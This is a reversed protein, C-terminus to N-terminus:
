AGTSGGAARDDVGCREFFTSAIVFRGRRPDIWDGRQTHSSLHGLAISEIQAKAEAIRREATTSTM